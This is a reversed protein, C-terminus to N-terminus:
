ACASSARLRPRYRQSRFAAHVDSQDSLTLSSLYTHPVRPNLYTAHQQRGGEKEPREAMSFCLAGRCRMRFYWMQEAKACYLRDVCSVCVHLRINRLGWWM